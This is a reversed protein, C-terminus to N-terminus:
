AIRFLTLEAVPALKPTDSIQREISLRARAGFGEVFRDVAGALGFRDLDPPHLLYSFTRVEGHAAQLAVRLDDLIAPPLPSGSERELRSLTLDIVVLHQAMSDHLERAVRRREEQEARIVITSTRTAKASGPHDSIDRAVGLVHRPRGRADRDLVAERMEIQRWSGDVHRMRVVVELVVGDRAGALARRHRTLRVLDEAHVLGKHSYGPGQVDSGLLPTLDLVAGPSRDYVCTTGAGIRNLRAFLRRRWAGTQIGSAPLIELIATGPEAAHVTVSLPDGRGAGDVGAVRAEAIVAGAFVREVAHLLPLRAAQSLIQDLPRGVIEASTLALIDLLGKSVRALVPGDPTAVVAALPAGLRELWNFDAAPSYEHLSVRAFPPESGASFLRFGASNWKSRDSESGRM